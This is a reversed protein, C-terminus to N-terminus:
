VLWGGYHGFVSYMGSVDSSCGHCCEYCYYDEANEIVGCWGFYSLDEPKPYETQPCNIVLTRLETINPLRGGKKECYEVASEWDIEGLSRDSWNIGANSHCFLDTNPCRPMCEGNVCEERCNEKLTEKQGCSDYYWVDSTYCRTEYQSICEDEIEDPEEEDSVFTDVEDFDSFDYDQHPNSNAEGCSLFSFCSIFLITVLEKM